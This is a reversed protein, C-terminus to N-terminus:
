AHEALLHGISQGWGLHNGDELTYCTCQCVEQRAPAGPPAPLQLATTPHPPPFLSLCDTTQFCEMSIRPTITGVGTGRWTIPCHSAPFSTRLQATDRCRGGKEELANGKAVLFVAQPSQPGLVKDRGALVWPDLFGLCQPGMMGMSSHPTLGKGTRHFDVKPQLHGGTWKTPLLVVSQWCPGRDAMPAQPEM